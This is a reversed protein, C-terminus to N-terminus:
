PCSDENTLALHDAGKAIVEPALMVDRDYLIAVSFHTPNVIVADAKPVEQMM